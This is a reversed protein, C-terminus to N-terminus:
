PNPPPTLNLALSVQTVVGDQVTVQQKASPPRLRSGPIFMTISIEYVGAPVGEMLFHGRADIFTNAVDRTPAGQAVPKVLRAFMRAGEPLLGADYTVAGRVSGSGFSVVVRVGTLQEGDKLEVGNSLVVGNSEIRSVQYGKPPNGGRASSLWFNFPGPSLGTLKFSGDPSISSIAGSEGFMMAGSSSMSYGRLKLELLTTWAKKDDHELVIVGSISSGKTLRVTIGTVDGDIVDFTTAEARLVRAPEPHLFVGYKGPALGDVTFNGQNNTIASTLAIEYRPGAARQVGFRTNPAPQGDEGIIRGSATFTQLPSGLKVDVNNAESGERVEIINAKEQETVDPHFVQKYVIRNAQYGGYNEEPRGSAVKYRGANLGFFRYVGRDDTQVTRAIAMPRQPQQATAEIRYLYVQEQIMARGDADLIKGTIVGGRVLSFNIDDVNEDEGVIVNKGRQNLSDGVVFAPV